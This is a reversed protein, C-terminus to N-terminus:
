LPDNFCIHRGYFIDVRRWVGTPENRDRVNALNLCNQMVNVLKQYPYSAEVVVDETRCRLIVSDPSATPMAPEFRAVAVRAGLPIKGKNMKREAYAKFCEVLRDDYGLTLLFIKEQLDDFHDVLRFCYTNEVAKLWAQTVDAAPTEGQPHYYVAYRRTMDHCLLPGDLFVQLDCHPCALLRISGDVVKELLEPDVDFNVSRWYRGTVEQGCRPCSMAFPDFVSM